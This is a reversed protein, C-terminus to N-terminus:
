PIRFFRKGNEFAADAVTETSVGRLQAIKEAVLAVYAPENRKGRYPVPAMYPCDTELLLRELPMEAAVVPLKAANKFTVAGGIGLYFGMALYQQAVEPSGSFCHLEVTLGTHDKLIDMTDQVAERSHVVVPVQLEEALALQKEFWERQLPRPNDDYHYDLGIEGLAVVKDRALLRRLTDAAEQWDTEGIESPHVGVAAYLHPYRDALEAAMRSSALSSGVDVALAVGQQPLAALLAHRDEDFRPDEPHCHTDFLRLM